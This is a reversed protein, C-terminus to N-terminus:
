SDGADEPIPLANFHILARFTNSVGINYLPDVIALENKPDGLVRTTGLIGDGFHQAISLGSLLYCTHYYDRPKGPKDVLGGFKDQCCVLIYEQLADQDFLYSEMSLAESGLSFLVKHLLPFVGGQWFSYCGDVLKNTRGQFGGEFRMQRNTLWRLLKKLDCLAERELLALAAYGCFTYGGHAEMSPVGGFGGEYTQCKAVWEATGDFLSPSYINTLKAVALACYTGRVDSEGGEHMIFSGDPQKVRKLFSHLKERDIVNYAEETGLICLANVAAYTPALHAEQGPGGGFGGEPHQCKALFNAISAKM